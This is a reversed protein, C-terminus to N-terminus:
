AAQLQRAPSLRGVFVNSGESTEEAGIEISSYRSRAAPQTLVQEMRFLQQIAAKVDKKITLLDRTGRVLALLEDVLETDPPLPTGTSERPAAAGGTPALPPAPKEAATGGNTNDEEDDSSKSPSKNVKGLMTDVAQQIHKATRAEKGALEKARRLADARQDEPLRVLQRVHSEALDKGDEDRITELVRYASILRYAHARKFNWRGALYAEFSDHKQRYLRQSQIQHLSAGVEVFTSLGREIVQECRDLSSEEETSLKTKKPASSPDEKPFLVTALDATGGDRTFAVMSIATDPNAPKAQTPVNTNGKNASAESSANRVKSSMATMSCTLQIRM